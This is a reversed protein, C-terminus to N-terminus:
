DDEAPWASIRRLGAISRNYVYTWATPRRGDDLRAEVETRVYLGSDIGEYADLQALASDDDLELLMGPVADDPAASAVLAPYEGCDYLAGHVTARGLVRWGISSGLVAGLRRRETLTGYVFLRM